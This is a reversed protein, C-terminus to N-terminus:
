MLSLKQTRQNYNKSYAKSMRDDLYLSVYSDLIGELPEMRVQLSVESPIM